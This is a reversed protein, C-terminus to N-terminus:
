ARETPVVTFERPEGGRLVRVATAEGPVLRLLAAPLSEQDTVTTTGLGVIIDGVILGARDAPTGEVVETLLFGLAQDPRRLPALIGNVGLYGRIHGPQGGAVFNEVAQSPIALSLAGNVMTNIGVVRGRADVLPGGSNGPLLTVDAQLWDGTRPGEPTAAQGAAVVIGTTVAGRFGLPHGIAMVLQGPRVTSSDGVDIAPLDAADVKLLALDREPHRAQVRAAFRRGDALVVDAGDGRVVHRNTVILGDPRWVVGAGNGGRQGVLVVSASVREAVAAAAASIFGTGLTPGIDAEVAASPLTAVM